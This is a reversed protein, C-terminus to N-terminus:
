QRSVSGLPLVLTTVVQETPGVETRFVEESPRNFPAKDLELGRGRGTHCDFRVDASVSKDPNPPGEVIVPQGETVYVASYQTLKDLVCSVAKNPLHQLVQRVLCVDGRPLDDAVIDLARFSVRSDTVTTTHHAVLEPVIDCGIYRMGSVAAVLRRGIEFDGCGLDVVTISRGMEQCHRQLVASMNEVYFDAPKGRSGLGSYFPSSDSGWKNNRYISKFTYRRHLVEFRSPLVKELLAYSLSRLRKIQAVQGAPLALVVQKLMRAFHM